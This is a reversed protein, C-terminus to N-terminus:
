SELGQIIQVGAFVDGVRHDPALQAAPSGASTERWSYPREVLITTAGVAAGAAIDVWRDGIIYSNTLDVGLEASLDLLMGSAPKRCRDVGDHPCVRVADLCLERTLRDHMRDLEEPDLTGRAVDPQNTVVL